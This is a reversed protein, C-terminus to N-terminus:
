PRWWKRVLFVALVLLALEMCIMSFDSANM